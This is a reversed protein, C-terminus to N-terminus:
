QYTQFKLWFDSMNVWTFCFNNSLLLFEDQNFSKNTKFAAATTASVSIKISLNFLTIIFYYIYFLKFITFLFILNIIQFETHNDWM